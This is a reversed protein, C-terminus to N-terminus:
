VLVPQLYRWKCSATWVRSLFMNQQGILIWLKSLWVKFNVRGTPFTKAGSWTRKRLSAFDAQVHVPMKDKTTRFIAIFSLFDISSNRDSISQSRKWYAPSSLFFPNVEVTDTRYRVSFSRWKRGSPWLLSTKFMIAQSLVGSLTFLLKFRWVVDVCCNSLGSDLKFDGSRLFTEVNPEFWSASSYRTGFGLLTERGVLLRWNSLGDSLNMSSFLCSNSNLSSSALALLFFKFFGTGLYFVCCRRKPIGPLAVTITM